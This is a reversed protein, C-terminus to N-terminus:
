VYCIVGARQRIVQVRPAAGALLNGIDELLNYIVRYQKIEVGAAKAEKVVAANNARVNFAIIHAGTVSALSVDSSAVPGVSAHIVQVLVQAARSFL